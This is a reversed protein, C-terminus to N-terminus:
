IAIRPASRGTLAHTVASVVYAPRRLVDHATFRLVVWGRSTLVNQRWRDQQFAERGGHASWGDCEIWVKADPYALDASALVRGHEVVAHQLSPRPLRADLLLLRVATEIASQARGDVQRLWAAGRRGGHRGTLHWIAGRLQDATLMGRNCASDAAAVAGLRPGACALDLLTRAVSTVPMGRNVEIQDTPLPLRYQRLGPKRRPHSAPPVTVELLSPGAPFLPLDWLLAATAHSAVARPQESLVRSVNTLFGDVCLADAPGIGSVLPLERRTSSPIALAAAAM